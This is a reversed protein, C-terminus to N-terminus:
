INKQEWEEKLISYLLQDMVIGNKVVSKRLRGEYQFGAKELVRSSAPNSEFPAAYIRILDFKSFAYSIIATLAETAIGQGWFPEAVWYGIEASKSFVDSKQNFGIGGIIESDSSIAFDSDKRETM